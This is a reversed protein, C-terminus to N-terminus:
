RPSSNRRLGRYYHLSALFLGGGIGLYMVALYPKPIPSSRMAIGVGGMFGAILYSRTGQFAFACVKGRMLCIRRINQRAIQSFSFRYMGLALLMGALALPAAGVGPLSALWGYALASLLVGIGTWAIGSLLLLWRKEVAPKWSGFSV